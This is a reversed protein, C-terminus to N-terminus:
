PKESKRPRRLQRARGTASIALADAMSSAANILTAVDAFSFTNDGTADASAEDTATSGVGAALDFLVNSLVDISLGAAVEGLQADTLKPPEAMATSSSMSLALMSAVLTTRM